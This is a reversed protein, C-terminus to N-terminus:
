LKIHIKRFDRDSKENEMKYKRLTKARMKMERVQSEPSLVRWVYSHMCLCFVLFQLSFDMPM